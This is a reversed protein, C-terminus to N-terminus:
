RLPRILCRAIGLVEGGAANELTCLDLSTPRRVLLLGDAAAGRQVVLLDGPHIGQVELSADPVRVTFCDSGQIFALAQDLDPLPTQQASNEVLDIQRSGRHSRRIYGKTELALLHGVVGNPSRIGFRKQIEPISPSCGQAHRFEVIFSLIEQQRTTLM